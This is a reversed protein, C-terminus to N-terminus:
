WAKSWVIGASIFLGTGGSYFATSGDLEILPRGAFGPQSTGDIVVLAQHGAPRLVRAQDNAGRVSPLTSPTLGPQIDANVRTIADRLSGPPIYYSGAPTDSVNVVTFTSLLFRDELAEVGLRISATSKCRRAQRSTPRVRHLQLRDKRKAALLSVV